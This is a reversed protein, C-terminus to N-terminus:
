INNIFKVYESAFYEDGSLEVKFKPIKFRESILNASNCYFQGWNQNGTSCVSILKSGFEDIFEQADKHIEGIGTTMTVFHISSNSLNVHRGSRVQKLYEKLEIVDIDTVKKVKEIFRETNGTISHYVIIENSM